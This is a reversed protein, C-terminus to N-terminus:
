ARPRHEGPANLTQYIEDINSYNKKPLQQLAKMFPSGMHNQRAREILENRHVPFDCSDYLNRITSKNFPGRKVM